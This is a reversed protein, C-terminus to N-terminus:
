NIIGRGNIEMDSECHGGAEEDSCTPDKGVYLADGIFYAPHPEEFDHYYAHPEGADSDQVKKESTYHIREAEGAYRPAAGQAIRFEKDSQGPDYNMFERVAATADASTHRGEVERVDEQPVILLRDMGPNTFLEADEFRHNHHDTKLLSVTGIAAWEEVELLDTQTPDGHPNEREPICNPVKEGGQEKMGAMEYGDWCPDGENERRDFLARQGNPNRPTERRGFADTQASPNERREGDLRQEIQPPWTTRVAETLKVPMLLGVRETPDEDNWVQIARSRGTQTFQMSDLPGFYKLFAGFYNANVKVPERSDHRWFYGMLPTDDSPHNMYGEFTLREGRRDPLIAEANPYTEETMERIEEEARERAEEKTEGSKRNRKYAQKRKYDERAKEIMERAM